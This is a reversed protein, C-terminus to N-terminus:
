PGNNLEERLGLIRKYVNVQGQLRYIEFPETTLELRKRTNEICAEAWKKLEDQVLPNNLAQRLFQM